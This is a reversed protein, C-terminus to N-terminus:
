SKTACIRFDHVTEVTAQPKSWYREFTGFYVENIARLGFRGIFVAMSNERNILYRPCRRGDCGIHKTTQVLPEPGLANIRDM